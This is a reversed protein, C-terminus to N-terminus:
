LQAFPLDPSTQPSGHRFFDGLIDIMSDEYTLFLSNGNHWILLWVPLFLFNKYTLSSLSSLSFLNSKKWPTKVVMKCLFCFNCSCGVFYLICLLQNNCLGHSAYPLFPPSFTHWYSLIGVFTFLSCVFAIYFIVLSMQRWNNAQFNAFILFGTLLFSVCICPIVYEGLLAAICTWVTISHIIVILMWHFIRM